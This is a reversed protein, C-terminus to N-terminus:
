NASGPFPVGSLAKYIDHYRQKATSAPTSPAPLNRAYDHWYAAVSTSQKLVVDPLASGPWFQLLYRDPLPRTDWGSGSDIAPTDQMGVASYRVRYDVQDLEFPWSQETTSQVLALQPSRPAFSVEVVDEWVRDVPPERDHLEVTFEVEGTHSGTILTLVGPWAAGCLGNSQGAFSVELWLQETPDSMVYIQSYEVVVDGSFLTPM